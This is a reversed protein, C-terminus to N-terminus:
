PGSWVRALRWSWSINLAWLFTDLPWGLVGGFDHLTTVFGWIYHSFTMHSQARLWISVWHTGIWAPGWVHYLYFLDVTTLTQLAMTERNQTQGVELLRNKFIIWTIMFCSGNSAMYPNTYVECGDQMWASHRDRLRLTFCLVQVPEAKEVLALAQLTITVPEWDRTHLPWWNASTSFKCFFFRLRKEM